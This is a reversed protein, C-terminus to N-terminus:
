SFAQKQPNTHNNPASSPYSAGRRLYHFHIIILYTLLILMQSNQALIFMASMEESPWPCEQSATLVSFDFNWKYLNFKPNWNYLFIYTQHLLGSKLLSCLNMADGLNLKLDNQSYKLLFFLRNIESFNSDTWFVANSGKSPGLSKKDCQAISLM